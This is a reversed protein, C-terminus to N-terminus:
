RAFIAAFDDSYKLELQAAEATRFLKSNVRVLLFDAGQNILYDKLEDSSQAAQFYDIYAKEGLLINRDDLVPKVKANSRWTVFGGWNPSTAVIVKEAKIFDVAQYPYLKYNPMFTLERSDLRPVGTGCFASACLLIGMIAGLNISVLRSNEFELFHKFCSKCRFQEVIRLSLFNLSASLPAVIVIGFFPFFRISNLFGFSFIAVLILERATSLTTGKLKRHLVEAVALTLVGVLFLAEEISGSQAPLWESNLTLFFKSSGLSLISQHLHIFYPNLLTAGTAGIAPLSPGLRVWVVILGLIFGPHINAWLAFLLILILTQLAGTKKLLLHLLAFIAISIIVPRLICHILGVTAAFLIAVARTFKNEHQSLALNLILFYALLYIGLLVASLTELGHASRIGGFNDAILFFTLDSLWQDSVWPREVSLFTDKRPLTQSTAILEGDALHWGLGPDNLFEIPRNLLFCYTFYGVLLAVLGPFIRSM